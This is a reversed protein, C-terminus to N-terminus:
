TQGSFKEMYNVMLRVVPLSDCLHGLGTNCKSCLWGRFKMTAHDHDAHLVKTNPKKGSPPKGCSECLEPRSRTPEQIGLSKWAWSRQREPHLVRGKRNSANVKERNARQYNRSYELRREKNRVYYQRMYELRAANDKLPM